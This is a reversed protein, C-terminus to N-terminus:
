LYVIKHQRVIAFNPKLSDRLIINLLKKAVKKYIKQFKETVKQLKKCRKSIQNLTVVSKNSTSAAVSLNVHVYFNTNTAFALWLTDALNNVGPKWACVSECFTKTM